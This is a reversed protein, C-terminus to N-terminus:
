RETDGSSCGARRGYLPGRDDFSTSQEKFDVYTPGSPDVRNWRRGVSTECVFALRGSDRLPPPRLLISNAVSFIATNAGIGLALATVAVAAFFPSRAMLRLGYRVDAAIAHM